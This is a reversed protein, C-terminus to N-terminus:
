ESYSWQSVILNGRVNSRARITVSINQTEAQWCAIEFFKSYINPQYLDITRGNATFYTNEIWIDTDHRLSYGATSSSNLDYDAAWNSSKPFPRRIGNEYIDFQLQVLPFSSESEYIIVYNRYQQRPVTGVNLNYTSVYCVSNDDGIIQSSKIQAIEMQAKVIRKQLQNDVTHDGSLAQIM